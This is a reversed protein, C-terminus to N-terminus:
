PLAGRIAAVAAARRAPDADLADLVSLASRAKAEADAAAAADFGHRAGTMGYDASNRHSVLQSLVDAIRNLDPHKPFTFRRQVERHSDRQPFNFGWRLLADRCEIFLSYYSRSVSSRRDAETPGSVLRRAVELFDRGVM